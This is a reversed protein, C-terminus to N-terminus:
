VTNNEQNIQAIWGAADWNLTEYVEAAMLECTRKNPLGKIARVM